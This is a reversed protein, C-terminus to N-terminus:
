EGSYFDLGMSYFIILACSSDRDNNIWLFHAFVLSCHWATMVEAFSANLKFSQIYFYWWQPLNINKKEEGPMVQTQIEKTAKHQHWKRNYYVKNSMLALLPLLTESHLQLGCQVQIPRNKLEQDKTLKTSELSHFVSGPFCTLSTEM